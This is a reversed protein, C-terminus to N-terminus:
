AHANGGRLKMLAAVAQETTYVPEVPLGLQKLKLFVHTIDPIDLGMDVLDQAHRFVEMPTGEMALRAHNMVILRDTMRAVDNMSHSVMMITANKAKRYGDIYSLIEETSLGPCDM